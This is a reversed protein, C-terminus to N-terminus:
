DDHKGGSNRNKWYQFPKAALRGGAKLAGWTHETTMGVFGSGQEGGVISAAIAPSKLQFIVATVGLAFLGCLYLSFEGFRLLEGSNGNPLHLAASAETIANILLSMLVVSICITLLAQLVVKFAAIAYGRSIKFGTAIIWLPSLASVILLKFLFEVTFVMFHALLFLYPIMLVIGVLLPMIDFMGSSSQLRTAFKIVEWVTVEVVGLLDQLTTAQVQTHNARLIASLLQVATEYFPRYGYQWFLRHGALATSVLTFTLAPYVVEEWTISGRLLKFIIFVLWCGVFAQFLLLSGPALAEFVRIAYHEATQNIPDLLRCSFCM